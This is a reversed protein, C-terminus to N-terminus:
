PEGKENAEAITGRLDGDYSVEMELPVPDMGAKRVHFRVTSSQHGEKTITQRLQFARGKPVSPVAQEAVQVDSSESDIHDVSWDQDAPVQLVITAQAIEGVRRAGLFLRAPLARVEPQMPGTVPLAVGPLRKGSSEVIDFAITAEFPGPPLTPAPAIAVEVQEAPGAVPKVQLNVFNPDAV